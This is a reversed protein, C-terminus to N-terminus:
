AALVRSQAGPRPRLHDEAARRAGRRAGLRGCGRAQEGRLVPGTDVAYATSAGLFFLLAQINSDLGGEYDNINRDEVAFFWVAAAVALGLGVARTALVSRLLVLGHLSAVSSAIQIAGFASVTVFLYYDVVFSFM